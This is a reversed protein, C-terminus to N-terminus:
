HLSCRFDRSVAVQHHSSAIAIQSTSFWVSFCHKNGKRVSSRVSNLMKIELLLFEVPFFPFFIYSQSYRCFPKSGNFFVANIFCCFLVINIEAFKSCILWSGLKLKSGLENNILESQAATGVNLFASPTKQNFPFNLMTWQGPFINRRDISASSSATTWIIM